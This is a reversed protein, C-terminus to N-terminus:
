GLVERWDRPDPEIKTAAIVSDWETTGWASMLEETLLVVEVDYVEELRAALPDLPRGNWTEPVYLRRPYAFQSRAGHEHVVVRGWQKVTGVCFPRADLRGHYSQGLLVRRVDWMRQTSYIGCTCNKVPPNPHRAAHLCSAVAPKGPLWAAQQVVACLLPDIRRLERRALHRVGSGGRIGITWGRLGVYPAAADPARTM